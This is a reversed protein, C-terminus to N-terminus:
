DNDEDGKMSRRITMSLQIQDMMDTFVMDMIGAREAYDMIGKLMDQMIQIDHRRAVVPFRVPTNCRPCPMDVTKLHKRAELIGEELIGFDSEEILM